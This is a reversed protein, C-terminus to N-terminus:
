RNSPRTAHLATKIAEELKLINDPLAKEERSQKKESGTDEAASGTQLLLLLPVIILTIKM